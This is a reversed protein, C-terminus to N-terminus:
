DESESIVGEQEKLYKSMSFASGGAGSVIGVLLFGLLIRWWYKAFSVSTSGFLSFITELQSATILYIITVLLLSVLASVVGIAVGEIMFPWRIFSNTAGVAKMISIERRRNFMTVKVTNSIIFLSVVLLLAIIGVSIFTVTRRIQLLKDALQSNERVSYINDLTKIQKVVESFNDMKVLTVKFADPLPNEQLGDLLEADDGLSQKQEEFSEEKPVFTVTDVDNILRIKEGISSEQSDTLGDNLFVMIVNEEEVNSLMANINLFLMIACGIIVLCSTLVGVSALSMLKNNWVNLLGEKTLYGLSSSGKSAKNQKSM